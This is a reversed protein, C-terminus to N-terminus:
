TQSQCHVTLKHWKLNSPSKFKEDCVECSFKVESSESNFNNEFYKKLKAKEKKQKQKEERNMINKLEKVELNAREINNKISENETKM